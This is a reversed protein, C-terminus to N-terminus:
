GPAMRSIRSVFLVRPDQGLTCLLALPVRAERYKEFGRVEQLGYRQALDGEESRLKISVGVLGDKFDEGLHRGEVQPDPAMILQSLSSDAIGPCQVKHEIEWITRTAEAPPAAAATALMNPYPGPYPQGPQPHNPVWLRAVAPHGVLQSLGDVPVYANLHDRYDSTAQGGVAAIAARTAESPGAATLSVFLRRGDRKISLERVAADVQGQQDALYVWYLAPDWRRDPPTPRQTWHPGTSAGPVPTGDTTLVTGVPAASGASGGPLGACASGLAAIILVTLVLLCWRSVPQAPGHPHHRPYLREIMTIEKWM